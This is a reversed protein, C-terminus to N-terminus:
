KALREPHKTKMIKKLEDFLSTKTERYTSTYRNVDLKLYYHAEEYAKKIRPDSQTDFLKEVMNRHDKVRDILDKLSKEEKLLSSVIPLSTDYVKSAILPITYDTILENLFLQEDRIFELQSLWLVCEEHLEEPTSWQIIKYTINKM